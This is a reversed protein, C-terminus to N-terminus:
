AMLPALLQGAASIGLGMAAVYILLQLAVHMWARRRYRPAQGPLALGTIATWLPQTWRPLRALALRIQTPTTM